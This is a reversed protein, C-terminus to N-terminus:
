QSRPTVGRSMESLDIMEVSHRQVNIQLFFLQYIDSFKLEFGDTSLVKGRVFRKHTSVHPGLAFLIVM